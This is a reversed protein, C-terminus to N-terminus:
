TTVSNGAKVPDSTTVPLRNSVVLPPVGLYNLGVVWISYTTSIRPYRFPVALGVGGNITVFLPPPTQRDVDDRPVQARNGCM